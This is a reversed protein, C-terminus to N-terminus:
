CSWLLVCFDFVTSTYLSFFKFEVLLHLEVTNSSAIQPLMTAKELEDMLSPLITLAIEANDFLLVSRDAFSDLSHVVDAPKPLEESNTLYAIRGSRALNLGLRRLVTSKGCGASGLLAYVVVDDRMDLTENISKEIRATIERSADLDSLIDKWQPTAGLLYLSRETPAQAETPM